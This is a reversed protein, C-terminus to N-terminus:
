GASNYNISVVLPFYTGTEKFLDYKKMKKMSFAIEGFM